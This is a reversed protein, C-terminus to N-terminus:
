PPIQLAIARLWCTIAGVHGAAATAAALRGRANLLGCDCEKPRVEDTELTSVAGSVKSHQM